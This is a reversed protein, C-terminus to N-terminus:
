EKPVLDWGPGERWRATIDDPKHGEAYFRFKTQKLTRENIITWYSETIIVTQGGYGKVGEHDVYIRRGDELLNGEGISYWLSKSQRIRDPARGHRM